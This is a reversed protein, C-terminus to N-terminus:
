RSIIFLVDKSDNVSVVRLLYTGSLVNSLVFQDAVSLSPAYQKRALLNGSIDYVNVVVQQKKSLKVKFNFTGNNPNPSLTVTDIVSVPVTYVPTASPDYPMVVIDKRLVYTCAGFTATMEVWYTGEHTFRIMDHGLYVAEPSYTFSADDPAPLSVEKIVLTDLANGTSSVLFNIDPKTNAKAINLEKNLSCGHADQVAVTYNGAALNTFTGTAMWDDNGISYAYPATGGQSAITLVGDSLGDCVAPATTAFQLANPQPVTYSFTYQCGKGDTLAVQYNGAPINKADQGQIGTVNWRYTFNGDGGGPTVRISGNSDGFCNAATIAATATIAPDATHVDAATGISCGNVDQVHLTHHGAALATFRGEAQYNGNNINYTYPPTGGAGTLRIEGIEDAGCLLDKIAGIVASVAAAPQHLTVTQPLICGRGDRINVTYNGAPLNNYSSDAKYASNNLSFAYNGDGGNVGLSFAGDSLGNCSVQQGHYDTTTVRAVMPAAPTTVEVAPTETSYCGAGDVIRVLYNGAGLQTNKDFPLYNGGNFAYESVLTGSGGHVTVDITAKSGFCVIDNLQINDIFIAPDSSAVTAAVSNSCSNVDMVKVTYNGATLATFVPSDSWNTNDISYKLDGTGGSGEVTVIGLPSAACVVGQTSVLAINIAASSESFSYDASTLCGRGDQVKLTHVGAKIRRITDGADFTGGDLAYTYGSYGAGNGGTAHIAAFGNLGGKCSINYGNYDSLIATFALPAAPDTIIRTATDALKCGHGDQVALNYNGANLLGGNTYPINNLTYRYDGDGGKMVIQISGQEHLCKIDDVTIRDFALADYTNVITVITDKECGNADSVHLAYEGAPLDTLLTNLNVPQGNMTLTYPSAGGTVAPLITGTADGNCDVDHKTINFMTHAEKLEIDATRICGRDDVVQVNYVGAALDTFRSGAISYTYPAEGGSGLLAISGDTNGTCSINLGHYQSLTASFTLPSAPLTIRYIDQADAVCGKGDVVRLQYNGATHLGSQLVYNTYDEAEDILYSYTNNGNGGTVRMDINAGDEFCVAENVIVETVSLAAPETIIVQTATVSCTTNVDGDRLIARYTGPALGTIQIDTEYWFGDTIWNGNVLKQWTIKYKGSGGAVTALLKGDGFGKCSVPTAALSISLAARQYVTFPASVQDSCAPDQNRLIVTHNGAALGTFIGTTNTIAGLTYSYSGTGGTATLTLKGDSAGPCTVSDQKALNLTLAAPGQVTVSGTYGTCTLNDNDLVKVTYAGASVGTFIYTTATTIMSRIETTGSLLAYKFNTVGSANVTVTGNGPTNCTADTKTASGTIQGPQILAEDIYDYDSCGTGVAEIRYTGAALNSFTVAATTGTKIGLITTGQKLTYTYGSAAGNGGSALASIEGDNAGFCSIRKSATKKVDIPPLAPITFKLPTICSGEDGGSNILWLTYTGAALGGVSINSTSDVAGGSWKIIDGCTKKTPNCPETVNGPRVSWIYTKFPFNIHAADLTFAGNQEGACAPTKVIYATDRVTPSGPVATYNATVDSYGSSQTNAYSSKPYFAKIYCQFRINHKGTRLEPVLKQPVFNLVFSNSSSDLVTWNYTNDLAYLWVVKTTLYEDSFLPWNDPSYLQWSADGCFQTGDPTPTTVRITNPPLMWYCLQFKTNLGDIKKGFYDVDRDRVPYIDLYTFNFTGRVTNLYSPVFTLKAGYGDYPTGYDVAIGNVTSSTGMVEKNEPRMWMYTNTYLNQAALHQCGFILLGFFLIYISKM